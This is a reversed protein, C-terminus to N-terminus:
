GATTASRRQPASPRKCCPCASNGCPYIGAVRTRHCRVSVAVLNLRRRSGTSKCVEQGHSCHLVANGACEEPRNFGSACQEKANNRRIMADLPLM